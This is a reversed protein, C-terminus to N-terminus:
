RHSSYVSLRNTVTDYSVSVGGGNPHRKGYFLINGEMELDWNNQSALLYVDDEPITCTYNKVWGFGDRKTFSIDTAGPPLWDVSDLHEGSTMEHTRFASWFLILFVTPVAIIVILLLLKGIKPRKHSPLEDNVIRPCRKIPTARYKSIIIGCQMCEANMCQECGCKPCIMKEPIM